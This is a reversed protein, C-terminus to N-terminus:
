TPLGKIGRILNDEAKAFSEKAEQLKTKALVQLRALTESHLPNITTNM